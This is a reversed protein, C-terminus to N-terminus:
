RRKLNRALFCAMGAPHPPNGVFYYGKRDILEWWVFKKSPLRVPYWAFWKHWQEREKMKDEKTKGFIIRM